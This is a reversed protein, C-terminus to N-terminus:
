AWLLPFNSIPFSWEPCTGIKGKATRRRRMFHVAVLLLRDVWIEWSGRTVKADIAKLKALLNVAVNELKGEVV